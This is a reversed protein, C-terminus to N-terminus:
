FANTKALKEVKPFIEASGIGLNILCACQERGVPSMLYLCFHSSYNINKGYNLCYVFSISASTHLKVVQSQETM